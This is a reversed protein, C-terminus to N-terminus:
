CSHLVPRPQLFASPARRIGRCSVILLSNVFETGLTRNSEIMAWFPLPSDCLSKIKQYEYAQISERTPKAHRRSGTRGSTQGRTISPGLGKTIMSLTDFQYRTSNSVNWMGRGHVQGERFGLAM